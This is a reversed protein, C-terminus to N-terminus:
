RAVGHTDPDRPLTPAGIIFVRANDQDAVAPLAEYFDAMRRAAESPPADHRNVIVAVLHVVAVLAVVSGVVWALAKTVWRIM